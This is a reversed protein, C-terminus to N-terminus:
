AHESERERSAAANIHSRTVSAQAAVALDATAPELVGYKDVWTSTQEISSVLMGSVVEGLALLSEVTNITMPPQLSDDDDDKDAWAQQQV